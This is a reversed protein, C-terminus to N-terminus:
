VKRTPPVFQSQLLEQSTPREKPTHKLLWKLVVTEKVLGEHDFDTPFIIGETRLDGLVKVREMSTTLPMHCMEFFIIGLSYLDVKHSYRVRGDSRKGVEPAAYLTSGVKSTMSESTSSDMKPSQGKAVEDPGDTDMGGSTMDRTTALGFNGIKIHGLSDLFLNEPKLDWHIIDQKICFLNIFYDFINMTKERAHFLSLM